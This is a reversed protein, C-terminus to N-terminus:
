VNERCKLRGFTSNQAPFPFKRRLPDRSIGFPYVCISHPSPTNKKRQQRNDLTIVRVCLMSERADGGVQLCGRKYKEREARENKRGCHRKGLPLSKSLSATCVLSVSKEKGERPQRSTGDGADYGGLRNTGYGEGRTLVTTRGVNYTSRTGGSRM